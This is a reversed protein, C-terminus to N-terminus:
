SFMDVTVYMLSKFIITIKMTCTRTSVYIANGYAKIFHADMM